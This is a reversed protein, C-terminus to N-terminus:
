NILLTSRFLVGLAQKMRQRDRRQVLLQDHFQRAHVVEGRLERQTYPLRGRRRRIEQDAEWGSPRFFSAWRALRQSRTTDDIYGRFPAYSM